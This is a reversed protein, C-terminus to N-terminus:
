GAPQCCSTMLIVVEIVQRQRQFTVIVTLRQDNLNLEGSALHCSPYPVHQHSTDREVQEIGVDRLIGTGLIAVDGILEITAILVQTDTLLDEQADAAVARQLSKAQRRTDIMHVLAVRSEQRQLVDPLQNTTM